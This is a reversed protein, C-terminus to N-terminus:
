TLVKEYIKSYCNLISVPRYNGIETRDEKKFIQRVSAIKASELFSNKLLDDNIINILHKETIYASMKASIKVPRTAKKADLSRMAKNIQDVTSVKINLEATAPFENKICLEQITKPNTLSLQM